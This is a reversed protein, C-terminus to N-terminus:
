PRRVLTRLSKKLSGIEDWEMYNGDPGTYNKDIPDIIILAQYTNYFNREVYPLEVELVTMEGNYLPTFDWDYEKWKGDSLKANPLHALSKKLM